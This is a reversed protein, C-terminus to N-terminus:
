GKGRAKLHKPNSCLLKSDVLMKMVSDRAGSFAKDWEEQPISKVVELEIRKYEEESIGHAIAFAMIEQRNMRAGKRPYNRRM